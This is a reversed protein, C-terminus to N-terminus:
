ALALQRHTGTPGDGVVGRELDLLARKRQLGGGYGTLAGDVALVRHCPVIIPVPTRAVAGGVARVRDPRGVAHALATYTTTTGYSIRLLEEWVARQFPTGGLDLRLEFTRRTGSFYADLQELVEGFPEASRNDDDLPTGRGPFRLARLGAPGGLLTLPGLPSEYTTWTESMDAESEIHEDM